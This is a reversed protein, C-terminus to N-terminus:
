LVVMAHQGAGNLDLYDHRSFARIFFWTSDILDNAWQTVRATQIKLQPLKQLVQAFPAIGLTGHFVTFAQQDGENTPTILAPQGARLVDGPRDQLTVLPM